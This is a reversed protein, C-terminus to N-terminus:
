RGFKLWVLLRRAPVIVNAHVLRHELRQSVRKGATSEIREGCSVM